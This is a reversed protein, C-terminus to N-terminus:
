LQNGPKIVISKNINCFNKLIEVTRPTIDIMQNRSKKITTYTPITVTMTTRTLIIFFFLM